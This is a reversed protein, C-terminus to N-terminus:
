RKVRLLITDYKYWHTIEEVYDPHKGTYFVEAIGPRSGLELPGLLAYDVGHVRLSDFTWDARLPIFSLGLLRALHPKSTCLLGPGIKGRLDNAMEVLHLPQKSLKDRFDVVSM